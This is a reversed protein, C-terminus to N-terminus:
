RSDLSRKWSTDVSKRRSSSVSRVTVQKRSSRGFTAFPRAAAAHLMQADRLGPLGRTRSIVENHIEYISLVLDAIQGRVDPDGATM